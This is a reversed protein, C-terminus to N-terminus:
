GSSSSPLLYRDYLNIIDDTTLGAKYMERIKAIHRVDRIGLKNWLYPILKERNERTTIEGLIHKAIQYFEEFTYEKFNIVFFRSLLPKAINHTTNTTAVVITDVEKRRQRGYKTEVIIGNEMLSYLAAEDKKSLESIEDILLYKIDRSFLLDLLGAKSTSVGSILAASPLRSLALLFLTKASAPPGVFLVHVRANANIIKYLARKIDDYGIIDKFLETMNLEDNNNNNNSNNNSNNNNNNFFARAEEYFKKLEDRDLIYGTMNNSKYILKILGMRLLRGVDHYSNAVEHWAWGIYYNGASCNPCKWELGNVISSRINPDDLDAKTSCQRCKLRQTTDEHKKIRDLLQMVDPSYAMPSTSAPPPAM